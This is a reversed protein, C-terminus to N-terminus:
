NAERGTDPVSGRASSVNAM